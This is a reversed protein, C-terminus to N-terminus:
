AIRYVTFLCASYCIPVCEFVVYCLRVTMELSLYTVTDDFYVFNGEVSTIKAWLRKAFHQCNSSQVDYEDFLEREKFIWDIIDVVSLSNCSDGEKMVGMSKLKKRKEGGRWEELKFPSTPSYSSSPHPKYCCLSLSSRTQPETREGEDCTANPPCSQMLICTKIKELSFILGDETEFQVYHHSLKDVVRKMQELDIKYLRIKKIKAHTPLNSKFTHLRNNSHRSFKSKGKQDYEYYLLQGTQWETGFLPGSIGSKSVSASM